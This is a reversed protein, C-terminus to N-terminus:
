SFNWATCIGLSATFFAGIGFSCIAMFDAVPLMPDPADDGALVRELYRKNLRFISLTAWIAILFFFLAAVNLVFMAHTIAGSKNTLIAVLVGIGGASLTLLSRDHELASNFWATAGASYFEVDKLANIERRRM